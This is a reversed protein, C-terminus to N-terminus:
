CVELYMPIPQSYGIRQGHFFPIVLDTKYLQLEAAINVVMDSFM